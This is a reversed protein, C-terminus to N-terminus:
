EWALQMEYAIGAILSPPDQKEEALNLVAHAWGGPVLMADGAEQVCLLAGSIAGEIADGLPQDPDNRGLTREIEGQAWPPLAQASGRLGQFLQSPHVTSYVSASPPLLMWLKRGSALVNVATKHTHLPAGTGPLGM